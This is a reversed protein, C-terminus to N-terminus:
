IVAPVAAALPSPPLGDRQKGNGSQTWTSLERPASSLNANATRKCAPVVSEQHGGVYCTRASVSDRSLRQGPTTASRGPENDTCSAARARQDRLQQRERPESQRQGVVADDVGRLEVRLHSFRTNTQKIEGQEHANKRPMSKRIPACNVESTLENRVASAAADSNHDRRALGQENPTTSDHPRTTSLNERVKQLRKRARVLHLHLQGVQAREVSDLDTNKHNGRLSHPM